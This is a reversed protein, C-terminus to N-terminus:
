RGPVIKKGGNSEALERFQRCVAQADQMTRFLYEVDKLVIKWGTNEVYSLHFGLYHTDTITIVNNNERPLM